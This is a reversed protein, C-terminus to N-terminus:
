AQALLFCLRDEIVEEITEEELAMDSEIREMSSVNDDHTSEKRFTVPICSASGPRSFTNRM